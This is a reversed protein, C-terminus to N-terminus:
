LDGGYGRCSAFIVWGVAMAWALRYFGGYFATATESPLDGTTTSPLNLGFVVLYGVLFAVIWAFINLEQYFYTQFSHM